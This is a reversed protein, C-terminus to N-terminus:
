GWVHSAKKLSVPKRVTLSGLPSLVGFLFCSYFWKYFLFRSKYLRIEISVKWTYLDKFSIECPFWAMAFSKWRPQQLLGTFCQQRCGMPETSPSAHPTSIRANKKASSAPHVSAHTETRWFNRRIVRFAGWRSRCQVLTLSRCAWILQVFSNSDTRTTSPASLDSLCLHWFTGIHLVERLDAPWFSESSMTWTPTAKTIPREIWPKLCSVVFSVLWLVFPVKAREVGPLKVQGVYQSLTWAQDLSESDMVPEWFSGRQSFFGRFGVGSGIVSWAQLIM